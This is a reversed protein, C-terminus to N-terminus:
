IKKMEDLDPWRQNMHNVILLNSQIYDSLSPYDLSSYKGPESEDFSRDRDEIQGLDESQEIEERQRIDEACGAEEIQGTEQVPVQLSERSRRNDHENEVQEVIEQGGEGIDQEGGVKWMEIARKVDGPIYIKFNTSYGRGVM